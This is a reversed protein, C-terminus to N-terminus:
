NAGKVFRGIGGLSIILELWKLQAKERPTGKYTWEDKKVEESTFVGCVSGVHAPTILIPTIGILDSSKIRENVKKSDNALGYRVPIGRMDPLAGVNNRWLRGGQKCAQVRRAQSNATETRATRESPAPQDDLTNLQLRLDIVAESSVGWKKAWGNLMM